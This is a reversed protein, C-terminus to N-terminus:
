KPGGKCNKAHKRNQVPIMRFCKECLYRRGAKHSHRLGNARAKAQAEPNAWIPPKAPAPRVDYSKM